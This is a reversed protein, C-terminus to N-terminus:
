FKNKFIGTTLLFYGSCFYQLFSHLMLILTIDSLTTLIFTIYSYSYQLFIYSYCYQLFLFTPLFTDQRCRIYKEWSFFSSKSTKCM